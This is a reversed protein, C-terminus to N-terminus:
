GVRWCYPVPRAAPAQAAMGVAVLLIGQLSYFILGSFLVKNIRDYDEHTYYASIFKVFSSGLGLDLLSFSSIFVSLIIWAGFESVTLHKLIYPTLLFAAFFTWFRGLFNFFTNAVLKKSFDGLFTVSDDAQAPGWKSM